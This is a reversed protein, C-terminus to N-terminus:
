RPIGTEKCATLFHALVEPLSVSIKSALQEIIRDLRLSGPQFREFERLYTYQSDPTMLALVFVIATDELDPVPKSRHVGGIAAALWPSAITGIGWCPTSAGGGYTESSWGEIHRPGSGVSQLGVQGMAANLLPLLASRARSIAENYLRNLRQDNSEERVIANAEWLRRVDEKYGSLDVQISIPSSDSWWSLEAAFEDMTPRASPDDATSRELLPDLSSATASTVHSSLRLGPRDSRLEGPPPYLRGAAVAWLTKALSYVDALEGDATDADRRMEPAMFFYPGLPRGHRTVQEQEPYKVLGFDGIVWDGNLQFLNDPKIDRHAVGSAALSALTKAIRRIATVVSSLDPSTGLATVLPVALPMVYWSPKTPDDPLAYDLLPLVGPHSGRRLLFDVENRFRSIRDRQHARERKLIKVAAEMGDTAGGTDRCRYVDGNGGHQGDIRDLLLWTGCM